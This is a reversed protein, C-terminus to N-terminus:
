CSMYSLMEWPTRPAIILGGLPMEKKIVDRVGLAYLISLFLLDVLNKTGVLIRCVDCLGLRFTIVHSDEYPCAVVDKENFMILM